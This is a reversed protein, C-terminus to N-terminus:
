RRLQHTSCGLDKAAESIKRGSIIEVITKHIRRPQRNFLELTTLARGIDKGRTEALRVFDEWLITKSGNEWRAVQNFSYGLRRSAIACSTRGRIARILERSVNEFNEM